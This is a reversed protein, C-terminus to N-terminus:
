RNEGPPLELLNCAGTSLLSDIKPLIQQGVTKGNPGVIHSLFVEEITVLGAEVANFQGM